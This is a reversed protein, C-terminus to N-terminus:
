YQSNVLPEKSPIDYVCFLSYLLITYGRRCGLCGPNEKNAWKSGFSRWSTMWSHPSVQGQWEPCEQSTGHVAGWYSLGIVGVVTQTVVRSDYMNITNLGRLIKGYEHGNWPMYIVPTLMCSYKCTRPAWGGLVRLLSHESDIPGVFIANIGLFWHLGLVHGRNKFTLV